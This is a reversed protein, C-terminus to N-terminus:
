LIIYVIIKKLYTKTKIYGNFTSPYKFKTGVSSEILCKFTYVIFDEDQDVM